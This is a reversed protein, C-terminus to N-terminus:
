SVLLGEAGTDNCSNVTERGTCFKIGFPYEMWTFISGLLFDLFADWVVVHPGYGRDHSHLINGGERQFAKCPADWQHSLPKGENYKIGLEDHSVLSFLIWRSKLNLVGVWGLFIGCMYLYQSTAQQSASAM